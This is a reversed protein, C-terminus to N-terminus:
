CAIGTVAVEVMIQQPDRFGVMRCTVPHVISNAPSPLAVPAALGGEGFRKRCMPM